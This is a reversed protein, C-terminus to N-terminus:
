KKKKKTKKKADDDAPNLLRGRRVKVGSMDDFFERFKKYELAYTSPQNSLPIVFENM